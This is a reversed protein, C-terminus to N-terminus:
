MQIDVDEFSEIEHFIYEYVKRCLEAIKERDAKTYVKVTSTGLHGLMDAVEQESMKLVHLMIYALTHRWSHNISKGYGLPINAKIYYQRLRKNWAAKTLAGGLSDLFLYHNQDMGWEEKFKDPNVTDAKSTSYKKPYKKSLRAHEVEIYSKILEYTYDDLLICNRPLNYEDVYDRTKYTKQSSPHNRNKAWRGVVDTTRNRLYMCKMVEGTEESVYTSIDEITLGLTEGQRKGHFFELLIIICGTTDGAKRMVKILDAFHKVTNHSPCVTNKRPKPAYKYDKYEKSRVNDDEENRTTHRVSYALLPEKDYKLCDIFFTKIDNFYVAASSIRVGEGRSLFDVFDQCYIEPIKYDKISYAECFVVLLRLATVSHETTNPSMRKRKGTNLYQYIPRIPHMDEGYIIHRVGDKLRVKAYYAHITRVVYNRGDPGKEVVDFVTQHREKRQVLAM